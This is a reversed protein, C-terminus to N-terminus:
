VDVGRTQLENAMATQWPDDAEADNAIFERRLEADSMTALREQYDLAHRGHEDDPTM